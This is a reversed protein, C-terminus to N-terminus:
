GKGDLAGAVAPAPAEGNGTTEQEAAAKREAAKKQSAVENPTVWGIFSKNDNCQEVVGMGLQYVKKSMLEAPLGIDRAERLDIPFLHHTYEYVLRYAIKEAKDKRHNSELLIQAYREGIKLSRGWAGFDLARIGALMPGISGTAFVSATGLLDTLNIQGGADASLQKLAKSMTNVGFLRVYDVSQYCDLASVYAVPNRPDSIQSDLPGLEGFRSLHVHKAGLAILTSASKAQRPVYVNLEDTYCTLYRVIKYASDLSGGPSDLLMNIREVKKDAYEFADLCNQMVQNEALLDPRVFPTFQGTIVLCPGQSGLAAAFAAGAKIVAEREKETMEEPIQNLAVLGGSAIGTVSGASYDPLYSKYDGIYSSEPNGM